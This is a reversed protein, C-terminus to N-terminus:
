WAVASGPHAILTGAVIEVRRRRHRDIDRRSLDFTVKLVVRVIRPIPVFHRRRNEDVVRAVAARDFSQDVDRAVPVQPKELPRAPLDIEDLALRVHLLVDEAAEIRLRPAAVETLAA